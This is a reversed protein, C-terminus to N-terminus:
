NQMVIANDSCTKRARAILTMHIDHLSLRSLCVVLIRADPQHEQLSLRIFFALSSSSSMM